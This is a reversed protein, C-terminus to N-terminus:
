QCVCIGNLHENGLATREVSLMKYLCTQPRGAAIFVVVNLYIRSADERPIRGRTAITHTHKTQACVCVCARVGYYLQLGRAVQVSFGM